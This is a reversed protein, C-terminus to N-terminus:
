VKFCIISLTKCVHFTHSVLPSQSALRHLWDGGVCKERKFFATSLAILLALMSASLLPVAITDISANVYM